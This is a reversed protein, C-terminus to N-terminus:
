IAVKMRINNRKYVTIIDDICYMSSNSCAIDDTLHIPDNIKTNALPMLDSIDSM